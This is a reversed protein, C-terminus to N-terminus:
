QWDSDSIGLGAHTQKLPRGIYLCPGGAAHCFYDVALQRIHMQTDRGAGAFYKALQPDTALRPVFDDIVAAIADYGGVRKYLTTSSPAQALAVNAGIALVVIVPAVRRTLMHMM